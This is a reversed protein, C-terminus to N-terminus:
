NSLKNRVKNMVEGLKSGFGSKGCLYNYSELNKGQLETSCFCEVFRVPDDQDIADCFILDELLEYDIKNGCNKVKKSRAKTM